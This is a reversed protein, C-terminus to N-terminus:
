NKGGGVLAQLERTEAEIDKAMVGPKSPYPELGIKALSAIVEPDALVEQIATYWKDVIEKPLKPPGSIGNWQITAVNPHGLERTSPMDPLAKTREDAFVAIPRVKGAAIFSQFSSASGAGLMIHNGALQTAVEAGGRSVVSRTQAPDVGAMKFLKLMLLDSVGTGGLSGWTVAKPDAKIGAIVDNLSKYPSAAPVALMMPLRVTYTVFTRDSVKYPMDKVVLGLLSSASLGDILMRYGDPPSRMVDDVAVFNAGGPLNVVRVPVKWKEQLAKALIRASLDTSGGPPNPVVLEIAKNPYQALSPLPVLSAALACALTAFLRWNM